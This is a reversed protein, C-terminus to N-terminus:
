TRSIRDVSITNVENNQSVKPHQQWDNNKNGAQSLDLFIYIKYHQLANPLWFLKVDNLVSPLYETHTHTDFINLHLVQIRFYTM